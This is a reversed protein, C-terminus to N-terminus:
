ENDTQKFITTRDLKNLRRTLRKMKNDIKVMKKYQWPLLLDKELVWQDLAFYGRKAKVLYTGTTCDTQLVIVTTGKKFCHLDAHNGYIKLVDGNKYIMM